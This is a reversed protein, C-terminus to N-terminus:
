NAPSDRAFTRPLIPTGPDADEIELFSHNVMTKCAISYRKQSNERSTHPPHSADFTRAGRNMVVIIRSPVGTEDDQGEQQIHQGGAGRPGDHREGPPVAPPNIRHEGAHHEDDDHASRAQRRGQRQRPPAIPPATRDTGVAGRNSMTVSPM